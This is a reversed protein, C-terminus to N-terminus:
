RSIRQKAGIRTAYQPAASSAHRVVALAAAMGLRMGHRQSHVLMDVGPETAQM